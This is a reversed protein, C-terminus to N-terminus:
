AAWRPRWSRPLPNVSSYRMCPPMVAQRLSLRGTALPQRHPDRHVAGGPTREADAGLPQQRGLPRHHVFDVDITFRPRTLFHDRAATATRYRLDPDTVAMYTTAIFKECQLPRAFQVV